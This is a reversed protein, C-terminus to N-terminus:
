FPILFFCTFQGKAQLCRKFFAKCGECSWVSYYFGTSSDGCIQCLRRGKDVVFPFDIFILSCAMSDSKKLSLLELHKSIELFSPRVIIFSYFESRWIFVFCMLRYKCSSKRSSLLM